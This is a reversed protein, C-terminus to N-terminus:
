QFGRHMHMNGAHEGEILIERSEDLTTRKALDLSARAYNEPSQINM